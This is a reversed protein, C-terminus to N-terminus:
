NCLENGLESFYKEAFVVGYKYEGDCSIIM